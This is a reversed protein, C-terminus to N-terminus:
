RTPAPIRSCSECTPRSRDHRRAGRGGRPPTAARPRRSGASRWTTCRSAPQAPAQALVHNGFGILSIGVKGDSSRGRASRRPGTPARRRPQVLDAGRRRAAHARPHRRVAGPRARGAYVGAILPEPNSRARRSWGSSSRSTASRPGASTGSRTTSRPGERLRHSLQGPRVRALLAPRDRPVPLEQPPHRAQRLRRHRGPGAAPHDGDVLQHDRPLGLQRLHDDRRRREQRHLRPHQRKWEPDRPDVVLSAGAASRSSTRRRTSTSASVVCGAASAISRARAPRRPGLGYIAVVEGFQLDARRLAQMAIGGVTVFAAHRLDVDDPVPVVHNITPRPSSPTAPRPTPSPRASM